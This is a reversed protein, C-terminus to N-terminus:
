VDVDGGGLGAGRWLVVGDPVAGALADLVAQTQAEDMVRWRRHLIADRSAQGSRDIVTSPTGGGAGLGAGAEPTPARTARLLPMRAPASSRAFSADSRSSATKARVSPGALSPCNASAMAQVSIAAVGMSM